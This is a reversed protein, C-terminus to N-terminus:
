QRGAPDIKAPSEPHNSLCELWFALEERQRHAYAGDRTRIDDDDVWHSLVEFARKEDAGLSQPYPLADEVMPNTVDEASVAHRLLAILGARDATVIAQANEHLLRLQAVDGGPPWRDAQHRIAELRPDALPNSILDDFDWEGGSGDIVERLIRAVEDASRHAPREFPLLLIKFILSVLIVPLLLVLAVGAVVKRLVSHAPDFQIM